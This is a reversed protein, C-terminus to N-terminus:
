TLTGATNDLGFGLGEADLFLSTISGARFTFIDELM